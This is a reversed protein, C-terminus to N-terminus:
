SASGTLAEIADLVMKKTERDFRCFDVQSATARLACLAMWAAPNYEEGWERKYDKAIQRQQQPLIVKSGPYQAAIRKSRQAAYVWKPGVREKIFEGFTKQAPFTM